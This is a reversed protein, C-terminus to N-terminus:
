FFFLNNLFIKISHTKMKGARRAVKEVGTMTIRIMRGRYHDQGHGKGEETKRRATEMNIVQGRVAEQGVERACHLARGRVHNAKKM